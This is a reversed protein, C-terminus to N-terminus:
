SSTEEGGAEEAGPGGDSDNALSEADDIEAADSRGADLLQNVTEAFRM